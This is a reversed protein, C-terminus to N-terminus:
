QSHMLKSFRKGSEKLRINLTEIAIMFLKEVDCDKYSCPEQFQQSGEWHEARWMMILWLHIGLYNRNWKVGATNTKLSSLFRVGFGWASASITNVKASQFISGSASAFFVTSVIQQSMCACPESLWLSFLAVSDPFLCALSSSFTYLYPSM